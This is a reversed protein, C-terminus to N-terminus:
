GTVRHIERNIVLPHDNVHGIKCRQQVSNLYPKCRSAAKRKGRDIQIMKYFKAFGWCEQPRIQGLVEDHCIAIWDNPQGTQGPLRNIQDRPRIQNQGEALDGGLHIQRDDKKAARALRQIPCFIGKQLPKRVQLDGM